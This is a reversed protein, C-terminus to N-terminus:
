QRKLEKLVQSFTKFQIIGKYRQNVYELLGRFDDEFRFEKSHGISCIPLLSGYPNKAIVRDLMKKMEPLTLKCFDLKKPHLRCVAGLLVLLANRGEPNVDNRTGTSLRKLALRKRTIMSFFTARETYIPIELIHDAGDNRRNIDEPDVPWPMFSSYADDYNYFARPGQEKGWKFVSSDAKIGVTKLAKLINGSPVMCWNGARFASCVYDQDVRQLLKELYAKGRRLYEVAKGFPLHAMSYENYDLLWRGDSGLRANMWQPHFHLQVDHGRVMASTMQAEVKEIAARCSHSEKMTMFEAVEAFVTVKAGFEDAIALLRETPGVVLDEISGTGNGYIEYDLTLMLVIM